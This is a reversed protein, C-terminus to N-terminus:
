DSLKERFTYSKHIIEWKEKIKLLLMYDTYIRNRNPITVEIKASAADNEVDISIIKGIRNRKKGNEFYSIYKKGNLVKLNGNNISYLNLNKHFASNIRSTDANATGEIYDMLTKKIAEKESSIPSQKKYKKLSQIFLTLNNDQIKTGILVAKEQNIVANKLDGNQVLTEAYSDYVNASKPYLITNAKFIIEARKSNNKKTLYDYGLLNIKAENVINVTNCKEIITFIAEDTANKNKLIIELDKSLKKNTLTKKLRYEKASILALEKAKDFTKKDSIKVDPTIGIQEFGKKTYPNLGVESSIQVSFRNNLKHSMVGYGAGMTTEGIITARKINQLWFAFEEAASASKKNVLVYVPINPLKDGLINTETYVPHHSDNYRHYYDTLIIREGDLLYSILYSVLYPVGGSNNRVDFILADTNKVMNMSTTAALKAEKLYNWDSFNSIKIYGINNELIKVEQFGYNGMKGSKDIKLKKNKSARKSDYGVFLHLDNSVSRLDKTLQHVFKKPDKLSKYKGKKNKTKILEGIKIGTNLNVYYTKLSDAIKTVILTKEKKSVPLINENQTFGIFNVCLCLAFISISKIM